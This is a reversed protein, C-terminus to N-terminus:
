PRASGAAAGIARLASVFAVREAPDLGVLLEHDLAAAIQQSKLLLRRGRATLTVAHNRRDVADANRVIAGLAELDDLWSVIASPVVELRKGLERQSGPIGEALLNLIGCHKPRLGIPELREAFRAAVTQGLKAVLFVASGTFPLPGTRDSMAEM